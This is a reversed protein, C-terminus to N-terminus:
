NEYFSEYIDLLNSIHIDLSFHSEVYEKGKRGIERLESEHIDLIEKMKILLKEDDDPEVLFGNQKDTIIEPASGVATSLVPAGAYMAEVLSNSFGESFSTLVYLNAGLLYPYPDDKYGLFKVQGSVGNKDALSELYGRHDGEGVITYSVEEYKALLEPLIRILAEINKVPHLRSVSVINFGENTLGKKNELDPFLVPNAIRNLKEDGVSNNNRLYELVSKSNGIVADAMKHIYSFINQALKSQSPIGIEESVKVPIRALKAAIIGHFNAEAGSTHIVDPELERFLKILRFILKFSPIFPKEGLCIVRHGNERIYAEAEGGHGLAIFTLHISDDNCHSINM